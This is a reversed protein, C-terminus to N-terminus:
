RVDVEFQQVLRNHVRDSARVRVLYRGPREYHHHFRAGGHARDGDGFSIRTAGAKLGSQADGLRLVLVGQRRHLHAQLRPPQSDVRLKVPESIADGGLRDTALVQVRNVGSGLLSRRPVLVRQTLGSRVAQGDVLLSYTLGGVGTPPASWRIQANGPRVWGEPVRAAFAGPPAAVRDGVIALSGNEGQAFGLLADGSEIGAGDLQAVAGGLPGYLVGTQAGGEPLEQRVAVGPVGGANTEYAITGGGEVDAAAVIPAATDAPSGVVSAPASLNGQADLGAVRPTSGATYALLMSGELGDGDTAAVAPPGLPSATSGVEVQAPGTPKGGSSSSSSGLRTLFVSGGNPAAATGGEVRVAVRARDLGTAAVAIATADGEVPKGEWTEPSAPLVPGVTTGGIRRMWVRAFGTQDPEQWAVVARGSAGIAVKPANAETPPRMSASPNRNIAGLRSWRDGELRAVRIDALVDGPRLQAATNLVAPNGFTNTIVRYAVIAKGPVTGALSPDVGSGGGVNTDVLLPQGFEATGPDLTASYLGDRIEGSVLTGVQTVWVVMLRGGPGAAIAPQSAPYPLERDVRIPPGWQGAAYPSAFIHPVGAVTKVYVLGGTGDAAMAVGGLAIIEASPGDITTAPLIVAGAPAAALCMVASCVCGLVLSAARRRRHGEVFAEV